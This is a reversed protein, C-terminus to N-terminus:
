SVNKLTWKALIRTAHASYNLVRTGSDRIAAKHTELSSPGTLVLCTLCKLEERQILCPYQYCRTGPIARVIFHVLPWWSNLIAGADVSCTIQLYYCNRDIAVMRGGSGRCLFMSTSQPGRGNQWRSSSLLDNNSCFFVSQNAKSTLRGQSDGLWSGTILTPSMPGKPVTAQWKRRLVKQKLIESVSSWGFVGLVQSSSM